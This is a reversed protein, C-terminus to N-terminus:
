RRGTKIALSAGAVGGAEYALPSVMRMARNATQLKLDLKELEAEVISAKLVVLDRGTGKNVADREAKMNTLKDAISAVM